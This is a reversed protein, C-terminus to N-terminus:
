VFNYGNESLANVAANLQEKKVLIYDTNYTSIVFIGIKNKALIESIGALIGILSFDLIGTIRIARWGKECAEYEPPMNEVPCVLSIEEDTKSFFLFECVPEPICNETLRCVAFEKDIIELSFNMNIGMGQLCRDM